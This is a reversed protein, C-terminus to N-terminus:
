EDLEKAVFLTTYGTGGHTVMAIQRYRFGGDFVLAVLARNVEKGKETSVMIWDPLEQIEIALGLELSLPDIVKRVRGLTSKPFVPAAEGAVRTFVVASDVRLMETIKDVVPRGEINANVVEAAQEWNVEELDIKQGYYLDGLSEVTARLEAGEYGGELGYYGNAVDSFYEANDLMEKALRKTSKNAWKVPKYLM